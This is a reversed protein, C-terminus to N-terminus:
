QLSRPSFSALPCVPSILPPFVGRGRSGEGALPPPLFGSAGVLTRRLGFRWRPLWGRAYRGSGKKGSGAVLTIQAPRLVEVGLREAKKYLTKELVSLPVESSTRDAFLEDGVQVKNTLHDKFAEGLIPV